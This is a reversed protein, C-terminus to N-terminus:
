LDSDLASKQFHLWNANRLFAGKTKLLVLQRICGLVLQSEFLVPALCGFLLQGGFIALSMPVYAMALLSQRPCRLIKPNFYEM